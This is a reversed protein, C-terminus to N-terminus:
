RILDMVHRWQTLLFTAVGAFLGLAWVAGRGRNLLNRLEKNDARLEKVESKLNAVEARVAGMESEFSM